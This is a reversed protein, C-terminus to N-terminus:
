VLFAEIVTEEVDDIERIGFQYIGRLLRVSADVVQFVAFRLRIILLGAIMLRLICLSYVRDRFQPFTSSYDASYQRERLDRKRPIFTRRIGIAAPVRVITSSRSLSRRPELSSFAATSQTRPPIQPDGAAFSLSHGSCSVPSVPSVGFALGRASPAGGCAPALPFGASVRIAERGRKGRQGREPVAPRKFFGGGEYGRPPRPPDESERERREAM